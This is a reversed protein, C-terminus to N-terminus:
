TSDSWMDSMGDHYCGVRWTDDARNLFRLSPHPCGFGDRFLWCVLSSNWGKLRQLLKIGCYDQCAKVGLGM